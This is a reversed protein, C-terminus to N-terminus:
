AYQAKSLIQRWYAPRPTGNVGNQLSVFFSDQKGGEMCM